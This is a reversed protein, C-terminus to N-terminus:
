TPPTFRITRSRTFASSMTPRAMRSCSRSRRGLLSSYDTGVKSFSVTGSGSHYNDSSYTSDLQIELSDTSIKILTGYDYSLGMYASGVTEKVGGNLIDDFSDSDTSWKVRNTDLTNAIMQAAYQRPLGSELGSNVDDLIGASGAYRLTNTSWDHGVLGAKDADYGALVLLMKAAEVGTVTADPKFTNDGYGAIIGQSECFKIYGKAWHSNIDTLKSSNNEYASDDITNNRVVFIMKAMEARTVTADPRFSGDPEGEIVGLATLMNVADTAKIDAEDTFAAGAFMTFACAFALVLALVKKLNKM